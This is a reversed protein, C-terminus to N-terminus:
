AGGRRAKSKPARSEPRNGQYYYYDPTSTRWLFWDISNNVVCGLLREKVHALADLCLSRATHNQRLVMLVGDTDRAILDFDTVIGVPPSDLLVYSFENRLEAMLARWSPSDFLEAPNTSPRGAPLISFNPREAVTVMAEDLRCSGELVEALGPTDAIGLRSHVAPRRLDADVILVRTETKLALMGALNLTTLTKGDGVGPSSVIITKPRKPHHLIRTRLARYCEASRHDEEKALLPKDEAVRLSITRRSGLSVGNRATKEVPNIKLVNPAYM